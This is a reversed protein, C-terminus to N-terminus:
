KTFCCNWLFAPPHSCQEPEERQFHPIMMAPSCSVASFEEQLKSFFLWLLEWSLLTCQTTQLKAPQGHMAGPSQGWLLEGTDRCALTVQFLAQSVNRSEMGVRLFVPSLEAHLM